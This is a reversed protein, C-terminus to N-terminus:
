MGEVTSKAFSDCDELLQCNWLIILEFLWGEFKVADLPLPLTHHILVLCALPSLLFPVLKSLGNCDLGGFRGNKM